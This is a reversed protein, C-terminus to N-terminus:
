LLVPVHVYMKVRVDDRESLGVCVCVCVCGWLLSFTGGKHILCNGDIEFIPFFNVLFIYVCKFPEWQQFSICLVAISIKLMCLIHWRLVNKLLSSSNVLLCTFIYFTIHEEMEWIANWQCDTM